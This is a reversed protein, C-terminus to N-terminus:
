SDRLSRGTQSLFVEDLTPQMMNLGRIKLQSHHVINIFDSLSEEKSELYIRIEDRSPDPMIKKVFPQDQLLNIAKVLAENENHLSLIMIKEAIQQKLDHPNGESIIKGHDIIAVRDCLSDAEDLYHTSILVTLGEKQLRKLEEWLFARSQPDLGTTPEDLFLIQPAHVMGMALDIRRQQGGSLLQTKKDCFSSLAFLEIVKETQKKAQSRSLGYLQAQLLINERGSAIGISGHKQGVYGINKRVEMPDKTVDYGAVLVRGSSPKLLTTLIRLTTTKGAGNPGLLGFISGKDVHLHIGNVAKISSPSGEFEKYLNDIQIITMTSEEECIKQLWFLRLKIRSDPWM